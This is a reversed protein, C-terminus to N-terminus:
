SLRRFLCSQAKQNRKRHNVEHSLFVLMRLPIINRAALDQTTSAILFNVFPMCILFSFSKPIHQCYYIILMTKTVTVGFHAM